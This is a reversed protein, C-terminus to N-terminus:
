AAPPLTPEPVEAAITALKVGQAAVMDAVEAVLANDPLQAQLEAVKAALVANSAKVELVDGHIEEIVTNNAAIAAQIETLTAMIVELHQTHKRITAGLDDTLRGFLLTFFAWM